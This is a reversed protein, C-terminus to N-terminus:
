FTPVHEGDRDRHDQGVRGHRQDAHGVRGDHAVEIVRSKNAADREARRDERHQEPGEAEQPHSGCPQGGLSDTSTIIRLDCGVQIARKENRHYSPRQQEGKMHRRNEQDQLQGAAAGLNLGRSSIIEADPNQARWRGKCVISQDAPQDTQCACIERQNQLKEEIGDVDRESDKQDKNRAFTHLARRHRGYKGFISRDNAPRKM